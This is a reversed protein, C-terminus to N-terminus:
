KKQNTEEKETILDNKNKMIIVEVDEWKKIISIAEETVWKKMRIIEELDEESIEELDEEEKILNINDRKM